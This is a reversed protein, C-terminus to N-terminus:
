KKHGRQTYKKKDEKNKTDISPKTTGTTVSKFNDQTDITEERPTANTPQALKPKKKWKNKKLKLKNISKSKIAVNNAKVRKDRHEEM